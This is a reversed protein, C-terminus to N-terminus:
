SRLAFETMIGDGDQAILQDGEKRLTVLKGDLAASLVESGDFTVRLALVKGDIEFAKYSFANHNESWWQGYDYDGKIRSEYVGKAGAIDRIDSSSIPNNIQQSLSMMYDFDASYGYEQSLTGQYFRSTADFLTVAANYADRDSEALLGKAAKAWYHLFAGSDNSGLESPDLVDDLSPAHFVGAWGDGVRSSLTSGQKPQPPPLASESKKDAAIQALVASTMPITNEAYYQERTTFFHPTERFTSANLRAEVTATYENVMDWDYKAQLAPSCHEIDYGSNKYYTFIGTTEDLNFGIIPPLDEKEIGMEARVASHIENFFKLGARSLFMMYVFDPPFADFGAFVIPGESVTTEPEDTIENSESAEWERKIEEELALRNADKTVNQMPSSAEPMKLSRTLFSPLEYSSRSKVTVRASPIYEDKTNVAQPKPKHAVASAAQTQPKAQVSQLASAFSINM